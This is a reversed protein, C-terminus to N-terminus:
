ASGLARRVVMPGLMYWADRREKINWAWGESNCPPKPRLLIDRMKGIWDGYKSGSLREIVMKDNDSAENWAGLLEAIALEAAYPIQTLDSKAQTDAQKVLEEPISQITREKFAALIDKSITDSNLTVASQNALQVEDVIRSWLNQANEPSYQGILSHLLSLTVGTKSDLDYGLLHFDRMFRWLEDDSVDAGKAQKLHFRFAKLKDGQQNSSFKVLEVKTIFDIGDESDRALELIRRVSDIDTASLPGTILAIADKGPSFLKPNCFDCWAAHMVEGFTTDGETISLSHKIQALLKVERDASPHKAFVIFDDTEFGAYKGQLKIKKIPWSPLCPAYGGTLMLVTFLAQVRTEFNAGGGGTSYPNSLQKGPKSM